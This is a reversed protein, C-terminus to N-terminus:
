KKKRAAKRAAMEAIHMDRVEPPIGHRLYMALLLRTQDSLQREGAALRQAQRLSLGVCLATLAGSPTLGLADLARDFDKVTMQQKKAMASLLSDAIAREHKQSTMMM